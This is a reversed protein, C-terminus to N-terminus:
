GIINIAKYDYILVVDSLEYDVMANYKNWRLLIKIINKQPPCLCLMKTGIGSHASLSASLLYISKALVYYLIYYYSSSM